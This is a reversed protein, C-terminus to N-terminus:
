RPSSPTPTPPPTVTDNLDRWKGDFGSALDILADEVTEAATTLGEVTAALIAEILAVVFPKGSTLGAFLAGLLGSEGWPATETATISDEWEEETTAAFDAIGTDDLAGDPTTGIPYSV